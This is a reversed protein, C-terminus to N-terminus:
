EGTESRNKLKRKLSIEFLEKIVVNTQDAFRFLELVEKEIEKYRPSTKNLETKQSQPFEELIEVDSLGWAQFVELHKETISNGATLLVRGRSDVADKALVMGSRAESLKLIPM